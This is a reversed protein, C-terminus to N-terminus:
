AVLRDSLIGFLLAGVLLGIYMMSQSFSILWISECYLGFKTQMTETFVSRDWLPKDCPCVNKSSNGGEQLCNFDMPPSLFILSLVHWFIPIKSSFILLFLYYHYRTLKNFHKEIPNYLIRNKEKAM